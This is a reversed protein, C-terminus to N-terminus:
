RPRGLASGTVSVEVNALEPNVLDRLLEGSAYTYNLVDVKVVHLEGDTLASRSAQWDIRSKKVGLPLEDFEVVGQRPPNDRLQATVKPEAGKFGVEVLPLSIVGARTCFQDCAISEVETGHGSRTRGAQWDTQSFSM